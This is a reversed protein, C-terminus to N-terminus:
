IAPVLCSSSCMLLLHETIVPLMISLESEEQSVWQHFIVVHLLHNVFLFDISTDKLSLVPVVEFLM